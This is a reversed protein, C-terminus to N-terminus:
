KNKNYKNKYTYKKSKIIKKKSDMGGGMKKSVINFPKSNPFITQPNNFESISNNIREGIKNKEEMLRKYNKTTANITDAVEKSVESFANATSLGAKTAQDISRVTGVIIGIGPIEEVTNLGIQVASKGLVEGVEKTKEVIKEQLPEIYPEIAEGAVEAIKSIEEKIKPNSIINKIQHLKNEITEPHAVDIGVVNGLKEIGKEILGEGLIVGKSAINIAGNTISSVHPEINEILSSVPKTLNLMNLNPMISSFKDSKKVEEMIKNEEKADNMENSNINQVNAYGGKYIKKTRKKTYKKEKKTKYM